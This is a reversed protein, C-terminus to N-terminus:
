KEAIYGSLTALRDPKQVGEYRKGKIFWTPYSKIKEKICVTDKHGGSEQRSCEVYPLREVSAGFLDKQEV